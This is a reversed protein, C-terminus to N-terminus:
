IEVCVCGLGILSVEAWSVGVWRIRLWGLMDAAWPLEVWGLGVECSEFSSFRAWSLSSRVGQLLWIRVGRTDVKQCLFYSSFRVETDSLSRLNPDSVSGFFSTLFHVCMNLRTRGCVRFCFRPWKRVWIKLWFSVWFDNGSKFQFCTRPDAV